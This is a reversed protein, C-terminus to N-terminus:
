NARARRRRLAAMVAIAPLVMWLTAPEPVAAISGAASIDVTYSGSRANFQEDVFNSGGSGLDVFGSSLNTATPPQQNLWDTLVAIYAGAPASPDTLYADLALGTSTDTKAIPSTVDEGAVFNGAGDFLSIMPEFGGPKTTTGDLNTGGGYSTTFITLSSSSSLTFNEEIVGAQDSLTGSNVAPGTLTGLNVTTVPGANVQYAGLVNFFLAVSIAGTNFKM